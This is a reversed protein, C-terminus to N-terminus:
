PPLGPLQAHVPVRQSAQLKQLAALQLRQLELGDIGHPSHRGQQRTQRSIHTTCKDMHGWDPLKRDISVGQWAPQAMREHRWCYVNSAPQTSPFMFRSFPSLFVIAFPILSFCDSISSTVSMKRFLSREKYPDVDEWVISVLCVACKPPSRTLPPIILLLHDHFYSNNHFAIVSKVIVRGHDRVEVKAEEGEKAVDSKGEVGWYERWDM